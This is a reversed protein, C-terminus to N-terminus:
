RIVLRTTPLLLYTGRKEETIKKKFFLMRSFNTKLRMNDDLAYTSRLLNAKDLRATSMIM